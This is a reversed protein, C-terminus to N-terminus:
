KTTKTDNTKVGKEFEKQIANYDLPMVAPISSNQPISCGAEVTESGKLVLVREDAKDKDTSYKVCAIIDVLPWIVKKGTTELSPTLKMYEMVKDNMPKEEAHSIFIVAVGLSTLTSFVKFFEQKIAQWGKGFGIDSEHEVGMKKNTYERCFKYANDVTDIVITKFKFTGNKIELDISNFIDKLEQWSNIAGREPLKYISLAKHRDETCIFLPNNFQSAFTTKGIKPSGYILWHYNALEKVIPSKTSPLKITMKEEKKQNYALKKNKLLFYSRM